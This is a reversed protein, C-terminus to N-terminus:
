KGKKDKKDKDKNKNNHVLESVFKGDKDFAVILKTKDAKTVEVGYSGTETKFAKEITGGSYNKAIYDTIAKPLASTEIKNGKNGKNGDRTKESLFKGAADFKLGKNTGDALVIHVHFYKSSDGIAAHKITAGAYTTSIYTKVAAPLSAPDIETMKKHEGGKHNGTSDATALFTLDLYASDDLPTVDTSVCATFVTGGFLISLFLIKFNKM